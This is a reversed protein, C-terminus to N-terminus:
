YRSQGATTRTASWGGKSAGNVAEERTQSFIRSDSEDREM